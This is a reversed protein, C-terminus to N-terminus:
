LHGKWPRGDVGMRVAGNRVIRVVCAAAVAATAAFGGTKPEGSTEHAVRIVRLRTEVRFYCAHSVTRVWWWDYM